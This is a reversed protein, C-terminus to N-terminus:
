THEASRGVILMTAPWPLWQLLAQLARMPADLAASTARFVPQFLTVFWDTAANIWGAVPLICDRPCTSLWLLQVRFALCTAIFALAALWLILGPEARWTRPLARSLDFTTM